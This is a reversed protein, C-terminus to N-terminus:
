HKEKLHIHELSSVEDYVDVKGEDPNDVKPFTHHITKSTRMYDIDGLTKAEDPSLFFDRSNKKWGFLSKSETNSDDAQGWFRKFIGVM